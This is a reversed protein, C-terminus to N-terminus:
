EDKVEDKKKSRNRATVIILILLVLCILGAIVLITTIAIKRIKTDKDTITKQDPITSDTDTAIETGKGKNSYVSKIGIMIYSQSILKDKYYIEIVGAKEGEPKSYMVPNIKIDNESISKDVNICINDNLYYYPLTHEVNSYYNKILASEGPDIELKYGRLPYLREYSNFAHNCLKVTDSYIMEQPDTGMVVCAITMGNREAYSVFCGGIDSYGVKGGIHYRYYYDTNAYYKMRNDQWLEREENKNTAPIFYNETEIITRFLPHNYLAAAILAMDSASCKTGSGLDNNPGKFISNKCGLEAAVSNMEDAFSGADGSIYEALAYATEEGSKLLLGYLLDKVPIEEGAYLIVDLYDANESYYKNNSIKVVDSSSGKEFTVLATMLKLLGGPSYATDANYEYLLNGTKVDIVAAAKCSLEKTPDGMTADTISAVSSDIDSDDDEDFIITENVMNNKSPYIESANVTVSFFCIAVILISAIFRFMTNRKM